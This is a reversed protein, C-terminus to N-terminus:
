TKYVWARASALSHNDYGGASFLSVLLAHLDKMAQM